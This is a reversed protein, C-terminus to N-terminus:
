AQFATPTISAGQIIDLHPVITYANISWEALCVVKVKLNAV